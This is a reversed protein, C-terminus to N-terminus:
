YHGVVPSINRFYIVAITILAGASGRIFVLELVPITESGMKVCLSLTALLVGCLLM